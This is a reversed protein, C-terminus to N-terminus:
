TAILGHSRLAALIGLIAARAESDAVTGGAPDAIAGQRGALVQEGAVFYGDPRTEDDTWASGDFRMGHGRDIVWARWGRDPSAFRWGNETWGALTTERSEWAGTAPSAVIWCQGASPSEPPIALDASEAVPQSVMDLLLLAENHALEKQAQGAALLPLGIRDTQTLSM